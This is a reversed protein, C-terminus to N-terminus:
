LSIGINDDESRRLSSAAVIQETKMVARPQALGGLGPTQAAM